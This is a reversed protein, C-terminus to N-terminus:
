KITQSIFNKLILNNNDYILSENYKIDNLCNQWENNNIDYLRNLIETFHEDSYKNSWFIGYDTMNAPWNFEFGQLKLIDSRVSFIATKNGRALNEYCLTSDIGVTVESLDCLEYSSSNENEFYPISHKFINKYFLDEKARESSNKKYRPIIRLNKNMLISYKKLFNIIKYDCELGLLGSEHWQSIFTLSNKIKKTGKNDIKNNKISGIPIVKGLLYKRYHNGIINGFSLIFDVSIQNQINKDLNDLKEFIDFYYSRVGNQLLITKIKPHRCKLLYFELSNDILTFIFKPRVLKIYNDIYSQRLNSFNFLSILLTPINITNGRNELIEIKDHDFFEKLIHNNTSDFILILKKNPLRFIKKIFLFKKILNLFKNM